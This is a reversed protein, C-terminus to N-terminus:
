GLHYTYEMHMGDPNKKFDIGCTFSYDRFCQFFTNSFPKLGKNLAEDRTMRFQNDSPNLDIALGFSHLSFKTTSGKQMRVNYVGGFHTIERYCGIQITRELAWRLPDVMDRNVYIANPLASIHTNIWQPVDWMVMWTSEFKKLATFPNGYREILKDQLAM